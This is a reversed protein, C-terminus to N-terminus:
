NKLIINRFVSDSDALRSNSFNKIFSIGVLTIFGWVNFIGLFGWAASMGMGKAFFFCSMMMAGTYGLFLFIGFGLGLYYNQRFFYSVLYFILWVGLSLFMRRKYIQM